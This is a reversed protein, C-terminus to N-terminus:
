RRWPLGLFWLLAILLGASGVSIGGLGDVPVSVRDRADPPAVEDGAGFLPRGENGDMITDLPLWGAGTWAESYVHSYDPRGPGRVLVFRTPVGRSELMSQLLIARDDCDGVVAGRGGLLFKEVQYPAGQLLEATDGSVGKAALIAEDYRYPLSRVHLFLADVPNLHPNSAVVAEAHARVLPSERGERVLQRM